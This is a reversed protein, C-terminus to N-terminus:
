FSEILDLHDISGRLLYTDPDLVPMVDPVYM